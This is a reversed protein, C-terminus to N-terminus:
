LPFLTCLDSDKKNIYLFMLLSLSWSMCEGKSQKKEHKRPNKEGLNEGWHGIRWWWIWHIKFIFQPLIFIVERCEWIRAAMAVAAPLKEYASITFDAWKAIHGQTLDMENSHLLQTPAPGPQPFIFGRRPQKSFGAQNIACESLLSYITGVPAASERETYICKAHWTFIHTTSRCRSASFM